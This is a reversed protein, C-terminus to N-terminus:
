DIANQLHELGSEYDFNMGLELARRVIEAVDETPWIMGLQSAKEIAREEYLLDAQWNEHRYALLFIASLFVMGLGFGFLISKIQM